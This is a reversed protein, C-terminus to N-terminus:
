DPRGSARVDAYAAARDLVDVLAGRASRFTQNLSAADPMAQDSREFADLAEAAHDEGILRCGWAARHALERVQTWQGAGAAREMRRLDSSVTHHFVCLVVGIRCGDDGLLAALAPYALRGEHLASGMAQEKCRFRQGVYRPRHM